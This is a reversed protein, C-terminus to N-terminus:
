FVNCFPCCHTKLAIVFVCVCLCVGAKLVKKILFAGLSLYVFFCGVCKEM